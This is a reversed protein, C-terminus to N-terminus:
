AMLIGHHRQWSRLHGMANFLENIMSRKLVQDVQVVSLLTQHQMIQM